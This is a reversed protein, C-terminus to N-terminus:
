VECIEHYEHATIKIFREAHSPHVALQQALQGATAGTRLALAALQILEGAAHSVMQVGLLRESDHEFVLKLYGDDEGSAVGNSAGRMDHRAVHCRLGRRTADAHSLGVRAIEPTTFVTQPVVSLDIAVQDGGLANRAAIRGEYAATPTLQMNGAADGAAYVHPLSTRLHESTELGLRGVALGLSEAGLMRPTWRRGTALCVADAAADRATDGITFHAVVAGRRGTLWGLRAGLHFTVGRAKLIQRVYAAVDADFQPLIEPERAIVTVDAGLDSFAGAMELGIVGGGVLVLRRPFDPLFLLDDSTIGLGVGDIGPLVPESGAAVIIREGRVLHESADAAVRVTHPDRFEARGLYVRVGKDEFAAVSPQFREVIAHQRAVVAAWDLAVDGTRTGFRGAERTLRHIRGARM